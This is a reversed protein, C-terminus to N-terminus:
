VYVYVHICIYIHVYAYSHTCLYIYIYVYIYMYIVLAASACGSYFRHAYERDFYVVTFDLPTSTYIYKCIHIYINVYMCM